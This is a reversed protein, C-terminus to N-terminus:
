ATEEDIRPPGEAAHRDRGTRRVELELGDFVAETFPPAPALEAILPLRV